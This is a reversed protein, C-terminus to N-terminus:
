WFLRSTPTRTSTAQIYGPLSIYQQWFVVWYGTFLVLFWMFRSIGALVFASSRGLDVLPPQAHSLDLPSNAVVPRGAVGASSVPLEGGGHLFKARGNRHVTSARRGAQTTRPFFVPGCLVNRLRQTGCAPVCERRWPPSAGLFRLLSRCSRRHQGHHLLDFLRHLPRKGELRSGNHGGRFAQGAFYRTGSPRPYIWSCASRCPTACSSLWPAGISGILFYAAALILYAISLARRFGLRRRRRWRFHRSVM